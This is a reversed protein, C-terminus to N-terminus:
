RRLFVFRFSPAPEGRARARQTRWWFTGFAVLGAGLAIPLLLGLAVVALSALLLGAAAVAVLLAIGGVRALARDMNSPPAPNPDRFQGDPTMDIVPPTRRLKDM